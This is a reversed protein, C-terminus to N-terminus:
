SMVGGRLTNIQLIHEMSSGVAFTHTGAGQSAMWKEVNFKVLRTNGASIFVKEFGILSKIPDGGRGANPGSHFLLISDSGDSSGTNSVSLAIGSISKGSKQDSDVAETTVLQISYDWVSYSLGYGFPYVSEGDYFRYTRGPYIGDDRPRMGMDDLAVQDLYSNYYMTTVLRGSPNYKGYIIDALAQGGAQGPYSLYLIADIDDDDKYSSLDISGGSIAVLIVPANRRRARSCRSAAEITDRQVKPLLLSTRDIGEAEIEQNLGMILITADSDADMQQCLTENTLYQGNDEGDLTDTINCARIYDVEVGLDELGQKPTIVHSPLGHYNGLMIEKEDSLPGILTVRKYEALSLPLHPNGRRDTSSKNHGNKLLVISQLAAELAVQDHYCKEMHATETSPREDYDFYGVDILVGFLNTLARDVDEVGMYGRELAEMGHGQVTDGCDLDVGARLAMGAAEAYSSAYRHHEYMNAIAWCDSVVYGRFNWEDRLRDRLFSPNACAPIGDIANYSCMTGLAGHDEGVVASSPSPASGNINNTTAGVAHNYHDRLFRGARICADFAPLYTDDWDRRDLVDASFNFRGTELSYAAFHKCTAAIRPKWQNRGDDDRGHHAHATSSIDSTEANHEVSLHKMYEDGYQLSAVMVAAYHSTLYPDEGPTEQGRGWRPDRFINVNPTFYTSGPRPEGGEPEHMKRVAEAGIASGIENWLTRNWAAALGVVQPFATVDGWSRPPCCDQSALGHLGENWWNYAPLYIIGDDAAPRRVSPSDHGLLSIKEEIDLNDLLYRVRERKPLSADCHPLAPARPSPHHRSQCPRTPPPPPPAKGDSGVVDAMAAQFDASRKKPVISHMRRSGLWHSALLLPALVAAVICYLTSVTM